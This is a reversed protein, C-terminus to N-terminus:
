ATPWVVLQRRVAVLQGLHYANHDVILFVERLYTQGTGHPITAFLDVKPDAVLAKVEERDRKFAAVAADWAQATPPAPDKPWYDDPWKMEAYAANRCFDLIDHQAIRMHELLQWPSYPLGERRAGRLDAPIGTIAAEFDVHAEHWDLVKLLHTRLPDQSAMSQNVAECPVM